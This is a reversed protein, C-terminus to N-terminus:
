PATLPRLTKNRLDRVFYWIGLGLLLAMLGYFSWTKAASIARYGKGGPVLLYFAVFLGLWIEMTIEAWDTRKAQPRGKKQAQKKQAQKKTPQRKGM